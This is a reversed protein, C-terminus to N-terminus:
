ITSMIDTLSEVVYELDNDSLTAGSPLYFSRTAVDSANPCEEVRTWKRALFIDQMNYPIFGERTEIGCELLRSMVLKRKDANRGCLAIHYMWYVNRAYSKEVPCQITDFHELKSHYFRAIRRKSEIIQDIKELQACGLAATLNTMRYNVGIDKHMFKNSDGFALGKLNRARKALAEDKLTIM